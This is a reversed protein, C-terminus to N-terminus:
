FIYVIQFSNLQIYISHLFLFNQTGRGGGCGCMYNDQIRKEDREGKQLTERPRSEEPCRYLVLGEALMKSKPQCHSELFRMHCPGPAKIDGQAEKEACGTTPKRGVKREQCSM